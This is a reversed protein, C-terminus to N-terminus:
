FLIRLGKFFFFMKGYKAGGNTTFKAGFIGYPVLLVWLFFKFHTDFSASHKASKLDTPFHAFFNQL